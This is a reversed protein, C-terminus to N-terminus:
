VTRDAALPQDFAAIFGPRGTRRQSNEMSKAWAENIESGLTQYESIGERSPVAVQVLVVKGRLELHNNLLRRFMRLREPIGKSYDLRDVSIILRTGAYRTSLDATGNVTEEDREILESLENPAIGIPLTELRVLRGEFGVADM